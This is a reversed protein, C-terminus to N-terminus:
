PRSPAAAAPTWDFTAEARVHGVPSKPATSVVSVRTVRAALEGEAAALWGAWVGYDVDDFRVRVREGDAVVEPPTTRVTPGASSVTTVPGGVTLTRVTRTQSEPTSVAESRAASSGALGARELSRRIAAPREGAAIPASAGATARLRVAEDAMAHISANQERLPPLDATLRRIGLMAPELLALYVLVAAVVVGGLVVLRRERAELGQWWRM